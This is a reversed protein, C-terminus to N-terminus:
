VGSVAKGLQSGRIYELTNNLFYEVTAPNPDNGNATIIKRVTSYAERRPIPGSSLADVFPRYITCSQGRANRIKAVVDWGRTKTRNRVRRKRRRKAPEITLDSSDRLSEERVRSIDTQRWLGAFTFVVAEAEISVGLLPQALRYKRRLEAELDALPKTVVVRVQEDAV